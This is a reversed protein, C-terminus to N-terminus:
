KDVVIAASESIVDFDSVSRGDVFQELLFGTGAAGTIVQDTDAALRTGCRLHQLLPITNRDRWGFDFSCHLL